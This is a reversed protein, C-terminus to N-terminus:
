SSSSGFTTLVRTCKYEDRAWGYWLRVSGIEPRRFGVKLVLRAVGVELVQSARAVMPPKHSLDIVLCSTCRAIRALLGWLLNNRTDGTGTTGPLCWNCCGAAPLSM